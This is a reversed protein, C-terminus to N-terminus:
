GWIEVYKRQNDIGQITFQDTTGDELTIEVETGITLDDCRYPKMIFLNYTDSHTQGDTGVYQKAPAYKDIQCMGGDVFEASGHGGVYFGTKPDREPEAQNRYKFTGNWRGM